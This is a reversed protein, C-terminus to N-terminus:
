GGNLQFSARTLSRLEGVWLGTEVSFRYLMARKSGSMGRRTPGSYTATPLRHRQEGTLVRRDHRRDTKVNMGELYAIPSESARRDKVTWRGPLKIAQPLLQVDLRQHRTSRRTDARLEHLDNM